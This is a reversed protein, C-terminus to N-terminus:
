PEPFNIIRDGYAQFMKEVYPKMAPAITMVGGFDIVSATANKDLASQLANQTGGVMFGYFRIGDDTPYWGLDDGLYGGITELGDRVLSPGSKTVASLWIDHVTKFLDHAADLASFNGDFVIADAIWIAGPMGDLVMRDVPYSITRLTEIWEGWKEAGVSFEGRSIPLFADLNIPAASEPPPIKVHVTLTEDVLTIM